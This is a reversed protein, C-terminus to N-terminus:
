LTTKLHCGYKGRWYTASSHVMHYKFDCSWCYGTAEFPFKNTNEKKGSNNTGQKDVVFKSLKQITNMALGLKNELTKVVEMLKANAMTLKTVIYLDEMTAMTLNDITM